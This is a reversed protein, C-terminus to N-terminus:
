VRIRNYSCWSQRLCEVLMTINCLVMDDTTTCLAGASTRGNTFNVLMDTAKTRFWDFKVKNVTEQRVFSAIDDNNCILVVFLFVIFHVNSTFFVSNFVNVCHLSLSPESCFLKDLAIRTVQAIDAWQAQMLEPDPFDFFTDLVDKSPRCQRKKSTTDSQDHLNAEANLHTKPDSLHTGEQTSINVSQRVHTTVTNSASTSVYRSRKRQPPLMGKNM